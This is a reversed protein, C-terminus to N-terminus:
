RSDGQCPQPMRGKTISDPPTPAGQKGREKRSLLFYLAGDGTIRRGSVTVHAQSHEADIQLKEVVKM